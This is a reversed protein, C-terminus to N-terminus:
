SLQLYLTHPPMLPIGRVDCHNLIASLGGVVSKLPPFADSSEKVLNIALKTTAYATSSWNSKGESTARPDVTHGPTEQNNGDSRGRGPVSLIQDSVSRPDTNCSFHQLLHIMRFIFIWTGNTEQNHSTLPSPMPGTSPGVRLDPTSEAPRPAVLDVDSPGKLSGVESRAGSRARRHKKPVPLFNRWKMGDRPNTSPPRYSIAPRTASNGNQALAFRPDILWGASVWIWLPRGLGPRRERM